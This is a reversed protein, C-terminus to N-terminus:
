ILRFSRVGRKDAKWRAIPKGQYALTTADRMYMKMALVHREFDNSSLAVKAKAEAAIMWSRAVEPTAEVVRGSDFRFLRALDEATRPQPARRKEVHYTWFDSAARRIDAIMEDDRWVEYVRSEDMDILAHVYCIDRGTVGLGWMAQATVYPPPEEGLRPDGWQDRMDHRVTKTEVNCTADLCAIDQGIVEADIEARAWPLANDQYRFNTQHIVLGTKREFCQNAFPELARRRWFFEEREANKEQSEDGVIELYADLPSQFPSIGLIAAISGGGIYGRGNSSM